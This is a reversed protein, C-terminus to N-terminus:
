WFARRRNERSVTLRLINPAAVTTANSTAIAIIEESTVVGYQFINNRTGPTLQRAKAIHPKIKAAFIFHYVPIFWGSVFTNRCAPQVESFLCTTVIYLQELSM